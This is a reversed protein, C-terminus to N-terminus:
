FWRAGEREFIALFKKIRRERQETDKTDRAVRVTDYVFPLGEWSGSGSEPGFMPHTCLLDFHGPLLQLFLYKPFVQSSPPSPSDFTCAYTHESLNPRIM